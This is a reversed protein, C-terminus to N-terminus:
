LLASVVFIIAILMILGFCGLTMKVGAKVMKSGVEGIKEGHGQYDM